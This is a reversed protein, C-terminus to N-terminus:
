VRMIHTKRLRTRQAALDAILEHNRDAAQMMALKVPLTILRCPPGPDLDIGHRNREGKPLARV